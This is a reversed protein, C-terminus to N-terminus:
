PMLSHVLALTGGLGELYLRNNPYQTLNMDTIDNSDNPLPTIWMQSQEDNGLVSFAAPLATVIAGLVDGEWVEVPSVSHRLCVFDFERYSDSWPLTVLSGNVLHYVNNRFRWVGVDIANLAAESRNIFYCFSWTGLSFNYPASENLNLLLTRSSLTLADLNTGVNLAPNSGFGYASEKSRGM